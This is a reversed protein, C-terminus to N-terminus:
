CWKGQRLSCSNSGAPKKLLASIYWILGKFDCPYFAPNNLLTDLQLMACLTMHIVCVCVCLKGAPQPFRGYKLLLSLNMTAAAWFSSFTNQVESNQWQQSVSIFIHATATICCYTFLSLHSWGDEKGRELNRRSRMGTFGWREGKKEWVFERLSERRPTWVSILM